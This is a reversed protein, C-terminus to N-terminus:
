PTVTLRRLVINNDFPVIEIAPLKAGPPWTQTLAPDTACEVIVLVSAPKADPSIWVFPGVVVGAAPAPAVDPAALAPRGADLATWGDPWLATGAGARFAKVVIPGAAVVGRNKVRVWVHTPQGVRPVAPPDAPNPTATTWVGPTDEFDAKWLSDAFADHGDPTGYGGERGDFVYVDVPPFATGPAGRRAFTDRIVKVHLGDVPRWGALRADAAELQQAVQTITANTAPVGFNAAVHLHIALDRAAAKTAPDAADGGLKRYLEFMVSCWIAARGYANGFQDPDAWEPGDFRFPHDYTREPQFHDAPNSNWSFMKGRTQAPDAHKDDYYVAALFDPFGESLGIGHNGTASGLRTAEQIVHGYEHLILMGDSADPIGGEGFSIAEADATSVDESGQGQPDVTVSFDALNTFGLDTRLYAQFRDIHFYAMADLFKRNACSYSFRGTASTPETYKPTDYDDMHVWAGDLRYKGGVPHNLRELSVHRRQGDLVSTRTSSSLGPDGSTVIPNPDFVLSKGRAYAALDLVDAVHGSRADVLVRWRGRPRRTAVVLDWVLLYAGELPRPPRALRARVRRVFAARAKPPRRSRNRPSLEPRRRYPYVILRAPGIERRTFMETLRAAIDHAAVADVRAAEPGLDGPIGYCYQNYISHVRADAYMNVVIENGDVPLGRHEQAFRVSFTGPIVLTASARCDALAPAWGFAAANEVLVRRALDDPAFSGVIWPPAARNFWDRVRGLDDFAFHGGPPFAGPPRDRTPDDAM